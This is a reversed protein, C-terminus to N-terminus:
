ILQFKKRIYKKKYKLFLVVSVCQAMTWNTKIPFINFIGSFWKNICTWYTYIFLQIRNNWCSIAQVRFLTFLFFANWNLLLRKLYCHISAATFKILFFVCLGLSIWEITISKYQISEIIIHLSVWLHIMIQVHWEYPFQAVWKRHM